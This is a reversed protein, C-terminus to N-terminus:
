NQRATILDTSITDSINGAKDIVMIKFFMTDNTNPNEDLFDYEIALNLEGTSKPVFAPIPRNDITDLKDNINPNPIPLQNTRVRIYTMTGDGLDGEKDFFNIRLRLFDGPVIEKSNYGAVEIRPKTEFKDKGCALLFISLLVAAFVLIIKM